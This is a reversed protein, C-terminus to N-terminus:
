RIGSGARACGTCSGSVEVSHRIETFGHRAAIGEAWREVATSEVEVTLGCGRCVLHHHHSVSGCRRYLNEGDDARLTDVSGTDALAQLARYVTTLGVRQGAARLDAHIDQASRFGDARGLAAEVARRQRTDRAPRAGHASVTTM